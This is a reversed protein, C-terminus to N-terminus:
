AASLRQRDDGGIGVIREVEAFYPRLEDYTVPWDVVTSGEPIAAPGWCECHTHGCGSTIPRSGACGAAM